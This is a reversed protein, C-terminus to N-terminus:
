SCAPRRVPLKGTAALDVRLEVTTLGGVEVEAEAGAEVHPSTVSRDPGGCARNQEIADAVRQSLKVIMM